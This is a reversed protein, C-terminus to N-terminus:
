TNPRLGSGQVQSNFLYTPTSFHAAEAILLPSREELPNLRRMPNALTFLVPDARVQLHSFNSLGVSCPCALINLPRARFLSSVGVSESWSVVAFRTENRGTTQTTTWVFRLDSGDIWLFCVLDYNLSHVLAPYFGISCLSRLTWDSTFPRRGGLELGVTQTCCIGSRTRPSHLRFHALGSEFEETTTQFFPLTV